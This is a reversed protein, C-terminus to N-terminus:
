GISSPLYCFSVSRTKLYLNYNNAKFLNSPVNALLQTEFLFFFDFFTSSLQCEVFYFNSKQSLLANKNLTM